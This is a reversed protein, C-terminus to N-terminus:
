PTCETRLRESEAQVAAGARTRGWNWGRLDGSGTGHRALLREASLGAAHRADFRKGEEARAINTRAILADPAAANLALVLVLVAGFAGVLFRDRRDRLVTLGFWVFVCSLCALCAAAYFRLETLGYTDIYIRLRQAASIMVVSLLAILVAALVRFAIAARHGAGLAWHVVLLVPLLLASAAVLEFFGRRAYQAYTLDLSREVVEAGGFLYRVQVLVFVLFLVALPGMVLATEFGQFRWRGPLEAAPTAPAEVALGGWFIGLALWASGFLWLPHQWARALDISLARRLLSEM